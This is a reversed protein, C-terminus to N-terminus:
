NTISNTIKTNNLYIGDSKFEFGKSAIDANTIKTGNLQIGDSNFFYSNGNGFDLTFATSTFIFSTGNKKAYFAFTDGSGGSLRAGGTLTIENSQQFYRNDSETKTYANVSSPIESKKAYTNVINNGSSDQTAKTAAGVTVNALNTQGTGGNAVPLTGSVGPTVNGTGDFSASNTSSLNTQITRANALKTASVANANKDLKEDILEAIGKESDVGNMLENLADSNNREAM